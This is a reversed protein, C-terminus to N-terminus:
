TATHESTNSCKKALDVRQEGHEGHHEPSNLPVTGTHSDAHWMNEPYPTYAALSVATSDGRLLTYTAGKVM